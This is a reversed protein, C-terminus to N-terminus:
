PWERREPRARLIAEGLRRIDATEHGVCTARARDESPTNMVAPYAVRIVAERTLVWWLSKFNVSGIRPRRRPRRISNM